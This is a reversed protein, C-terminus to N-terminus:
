SSSFRSFSLLLITVWLAKRITCIINEPIVQTGQCFSYYKYTGSTGKSVFLTLSFAGIGKKM